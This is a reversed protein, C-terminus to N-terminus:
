WSDEVGRRFCVVEPGITSKGTKRVESPSVQDDVGNAIVQVDTAERNWMLLLRRVLHRSISRLTPNRIPLACLIRLLLLLLCPPLSASSAVCKLLKSRPVCAGKDFSYNGFVTYKTQKHTHTHTHTHSPPNTVIHM